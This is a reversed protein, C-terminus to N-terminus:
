KRQEIQLTQLLQKCEAFALRNCVYARYFHKHHNGINVFTTKCFRCQLPNDGTISQALLEELFMHIPLAPTGYEEHNPLAMWQSCMETMGYHTELDAKTRYRKFCGSCEFTKEQKRAQKEAKKKAKKKDDISIYIPVDIPDDIQGIIPKWRKPPEEKIEEKVVSMAEKSTEKDDTRKHRATKNSRNSRKTDEFISIM